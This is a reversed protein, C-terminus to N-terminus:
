PFGLFAAMRNMSGSSKRHSFFSQPEHVTCHSSITIERVGLTRAQKWLEHRLDILTKGEHQRGTIKRAVYSDVEYCSGCVSVGCHMVINEVGCSATELLQRIGEGLIGVATGKWGSHLLCVAGSGPDALFVPVCDAVTVALLMGRSGTVHGDRDPTIVLGEQPEVVGVIRGHLQKALAVGTFSGPWRELLRDWRREVVDRPDDGWLGLSTDTGAATIGAVFGLEAWEALEWTSFDGVGGHLVEAVVQAEIEPSERSIPVWRGSGNTSGSM